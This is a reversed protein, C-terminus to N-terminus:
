ESEEVPEQKAQRARDIYVEIKKVEGFVTGPTYLIFPDAGGARDDALIAIGEQVTPVRYLNFQKKRVPDVLNIELILNQVISFSTLV